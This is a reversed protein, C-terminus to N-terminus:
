VSKPDYFSSWSAVIPIFRLKKLIGIKWLQKWLENENMKMGVLNSCASTSPHSVGLAYNGHNRPSVTRNVLQYTQYIPLKDWKEM